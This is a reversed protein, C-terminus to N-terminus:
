KATISSFIKVRQNHRDSIYLRDKVVCIGWACDFQEEGHGRTEGGIRQLFTGEETFLQISYIDGVYLIDLWYCISFPCIFQGNGTGEGGWERWFAYDKKLLTQIRQNWSDCIYIMDNHIVIASPSSYEGQKSGRNGITKKVQGDGTYVYVQHLGDITIYMLEEIDNSNDLKIHNWGWRSHPIPFSSILLFQLNCISVCKRDIIYLYNQYFDIDSPQYFRLSSKIELHGELNFCLISTYNSYIRDCLYLRQGDSIIGLPEGSTFNELIQFPKIDYFIEKIYNLIISLLVTPLLDLESFVRLIDEM